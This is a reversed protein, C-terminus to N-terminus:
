CDFYNNNWIPADSVLDISQDTPSVPPLVSVDAKVPKGPLVVVELRSGGM